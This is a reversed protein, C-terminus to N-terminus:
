QAAIAAPKTGFHREMDRRVGVAASDPVTVDAWRVIEGVAVDRLLAVRHALGSPL